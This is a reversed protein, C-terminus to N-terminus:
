RELPFRIFTKGDTAQWHIEGLDFPFDASGMKELGATNPVTGAAKLLDFDEPNGVVAKWVGPAVESWAPQQSLSSFPFSYCGLVFLICTLSFNKHRYMM